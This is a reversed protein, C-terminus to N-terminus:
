CRRCNRRGFLYDDEFPDEYEVSFLPEGHEICLQIIIAVFEFTGVMSIRLRGRSRHVEPHEVTQLAQQNTKMDAEFVNHQMEECEVRTELAEQVNLFVLSFCREIWDDSKLEKEM